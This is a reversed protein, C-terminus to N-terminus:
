RIGYRRRLATLFSTQNYDRVNLVGMMVEDATKRAGIRYARVDHKQGDRWLRQFFQVFRALNYTLGYYALHHGGKQANLGHSMGDIQGSLVPIRGRNWEDKLATRKKGGVATYSPIKLGHKLMMEYDHGFEYGVLLPEGDLRKILAKLADIKTRHLEVWNGERDHYIAGNAAQRLKGTAVASNAAILTKGRWETIFEEEIEDYAARAKPPLDVWIDEWEVTVNLHKEVRHVLHGIAQQIEQDAGDRLTWDRGMFGCPTFYRNHYVTSTDGLARGQDVIYMLPWLDDYGHPMPTGTGLYRRKFGHLTKKLSKWYSNRRRFGEDADDVVLMDIGPLARGGFVGHTRAGFTSVLWELNQNNILYIDAEMNFAEERRRAGGGGLMSYTLDLDKWKEIEDPWVDTIINKTSTVLCRNVFGADRLLKYGMLFTSTKRTGPDWFLAGFSNQMVFELGSFQDQNPVFKEGM